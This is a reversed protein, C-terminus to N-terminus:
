GEKKPESSPEKAPKASGEQQVEVSGNVTGMRIQPGGQGLTTTLNHPQLSKRNGAALQAQVRGHVTRATLTASYTAPLECKISGNVTNVDLAGGSWTDGTLRITLGGNTTSGKVEGGVGALTVGGNVTQFSIIGQVNEIYIGGNQAQLSLGTQTPVFVEYSVSWGETAGNPRAALLKNSGSSIQVSAALAKAAEATAARGEVLAQVRVDTGSWGRVTISGGPRADLTLPAGAAPAALTLNRIECFQKQLPNKSTLGSCSLTFAPVPAIQALAASSTMVSVAILLLPLLLKM